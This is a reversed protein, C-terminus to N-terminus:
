LVKLGESNILINKIPQGRKGLSSFIKEGIELVIAGADAVSLEIKERATWSEAKGKRLVGQYVMQADVKVKLFNDEQARVVVTIAKPKTEKISGTTLM